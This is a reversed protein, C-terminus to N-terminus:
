LRTNKYDYIEITIGIFLLWGIFAFIPWIRRSFSACGYYENKDPKEMEGTEENKVPMPAPRNIRAIADIESAFEKSPTDVLVVLIWSILFLLPTYILFVYTVALDAKM